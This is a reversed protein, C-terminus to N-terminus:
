EYDGEFDHDDDHLMLEVGCKRCIPNLPSKKSHHKVWHDLEKKTPNAMSVPVKIGAYSNPEKLDKISCDPLTDGPEVIMKCRGITGFADPEFDPHEGDCIKCRSPVACGMSVDKPYVLPDVRGEEVEGGASEVGRGASAEPDLHPEAAADEVADEGEPEGDGRPDHGGGSVGGRGGHDLDDDIDRGEAQDEETSSAEGGDREKSRDHEGEKRAQEDLYETRTVFLDRIESLTYRIVRAAFARQEPMWTDVVDEDVYVRPEVYDRDFAAMHMNFLVHTATNKFQMVPTLQSAVLMGVLDRPVGDAIMQRSQENLHNYFVLKQDEVEQEVSVQDEGRNQTWNFLGLDGSLFSARLTFQAEQLTILGLSYRIAIKCLYSRCVNPRDLGYIACSVFELTRGRL